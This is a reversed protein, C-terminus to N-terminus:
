PLISMKKANYIHRAVITWAARKGLVTLTWNVGPRSIKYLGESSDIVLITSQLTSLEQNGNLKSGKRFGSHIIAGKGERFTSHIACFRYFHFFYLGSVSSALSRRDHTRWWSMTPKFNLPFRWAFINQLQLVVFVFAFRSQQSRRPQNNTWVILIM